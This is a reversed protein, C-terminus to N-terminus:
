VCRRRTEVIIEYRHHGPCRALVARAEPGNHLGDNGLLGVTLGWQGPVTAMLFRGDFPQRAQAVM